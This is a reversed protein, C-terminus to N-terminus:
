FQTRCLEALLEETLPFDESEPLVSDIHCFPCQPVGFDWEVENISFFKMCHFCGCREADETFGESHESSLKSAHDVLTYYNSDPGYWSPIPIGKANLKKTVENKWSPYNWNSDKM